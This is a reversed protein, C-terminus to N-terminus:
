RCWATRISGSRPWRCPWPLCREIAPGALLPAYRRRRPLTLLLTLDTEAVLFMGRQSIRFRAPVGAARAALWHWGEHWVITLVGIAYLVLWAVMPNPLFM